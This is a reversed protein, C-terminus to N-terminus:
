PCMIPAAPPMGTCNCVRPLTCSRARIRRPCRHGSGLGPHVLRRGHEPPSPRHISRRYPRPCPRHAHRSSVIPNFINRHSWVTVDTSLRRFYPVRDYGLSRQVAGLDAVWLHQKNHMFANFRTLNGHLARWYDEWGDVRMEGAHDDLATADVWHLQMTGSDCSACKVVCGVKLGGCGLDAPASMQPCLYKTVFEFM